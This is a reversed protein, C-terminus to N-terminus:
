VKKQECDALLAHSQRHAESLEWDRWLLDACRWFYQSQLQCMPRWRVGVQEARQSSFERLGRVRQLTKWFHLQQEFPSAIFM